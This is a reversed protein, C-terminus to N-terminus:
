RQFELRGGSSVMAKFLGKTAEGEVPPRADAKLGYLAESEGLEGERNPDGYALLVDFALLRYTIGSTLRYTM